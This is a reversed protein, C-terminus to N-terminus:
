DQGKLIRAERADKTNEASSSMKINLNLNSALILSIVSIM